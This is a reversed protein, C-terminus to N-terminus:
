RRVIRGILFGAGIACLLATGPRQRVLTELREALNMAFDKGEEFKEAAARQASDVRSSVGANGNGIGMGMDRSEM